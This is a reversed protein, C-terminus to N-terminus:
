TAKVIELRLISCNGKTNKEAWKWLDEVTESPKCYHVCSDVMQEMPISRTLVCCLLDSLGFEDATPKKKNVINPWHIDDFPM